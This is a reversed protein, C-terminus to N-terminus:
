HLGDWSSYFIFCCTAHKSYNKKGWAKSTAVVQSEICCVLIVVSSLGTQMVFLPMLDLLFHNENCSVMMSTWSNWDRETDILIYFFSDTLDNQPPLCWRLQLFVLNLARDSWGASLGDRGSLWWLWPHWRLLLRSLGQLRLLRHAPPLVWSSLGPNWYGASPHHSRPATLSLFVKLARRTLHTCLDNIVTLFIHKRLVEFDTM